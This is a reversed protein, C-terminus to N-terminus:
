LKGNVPAREFFARAQEMSRHLERKLQDRPVAAIRPSVICIMDCASSFSTPWTALEDGIRRKLYHRTVSSKSVRVGLVIAFRNEPRGTREAKFLFYPTSFTIGGKVAGDKASLRQSKPLM